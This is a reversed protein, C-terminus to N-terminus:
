ERSLTLKLYLQLSIPSIPLLACYQHLFTKTRKLQWVSTPQWILLFPLLSSSFRERNATGKPVWNAVTHHHLEVFMCTSLIWLILITLKTEQYHRCVDEFVLSINQISFDDRLRQLCHTTNPLATPLRHLRLFTSWSSPFNRRQSLTWYWHSRRRARISEQKQSHFHFHHALKWM